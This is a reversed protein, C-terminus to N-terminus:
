ERPTNGPLFPVRFAHEFDFVDQFDAREDEDTKGLIHADIMRFVIEGFDDTTHLGWHKLVRLALPGYQSLAFDRLGGALEQGRVHRASGGAQIIAQVTFDLGKRVFHYAEEHYRGDARALSRILDRQEPENM